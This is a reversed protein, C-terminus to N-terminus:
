PPIRDNTIMSRTSRIPQNARIINVMITLLFAPLGSFPLPIFIRYRQKNIAKTTIPITTTTKNKRHAIPYKFLSICLSGTTIEMATSSPILAAIRNVTNM